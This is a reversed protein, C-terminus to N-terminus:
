LDKRDNQPASRRLIEIVALDKPRMCVGEPHCFITGPHCFVKNDNQVYHLIEIFSLDKGKAESPTLIVSFPSLIVPLVNSFIM